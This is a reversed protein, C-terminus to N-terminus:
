QKTQRAAVRPVVAAYLGSPTVTDAQGGAQALLRGQAASPVVTYLIFPTRDNRGRMQRVLTIGDLPKDNRSMDSIVAGYKYMALLELAEETTKVQYVAIRHQELYRREAMNNQPHDDVWLVRGISDAAEGKILRPQNNGVAAGAHGALWVAASASVAFALAVLVPWRFLRRSGTAPLLGAADRPEVQLRYGYGHVTELAEAEDGLAHRLRSIAKALSNEHVLRGPWGAELLRDKGVEAGAESLLVKLIAASSRDLEVPRGGVSLRGRAADFMVEGFRIRYGDM